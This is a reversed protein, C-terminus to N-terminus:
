SKPKYFVDAEDHYFHKMKVGDYQSDSLLRHEVLEGEWTRDKNDIDMKNQWLKALREDNINYCLLTGGFAQLRHLGKYRKICEKLRQVVNKPKTNM